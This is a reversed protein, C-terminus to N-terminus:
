LASLLSCSERSLLVRRKYKGNLFVGRLVVDSSAQRTVCYSGLSMGAEVGSFGGQVGYTAVVESRMILLLLKLWEQALASFCQKPTNLGGFM